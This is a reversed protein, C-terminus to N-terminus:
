DFRRYPPLPTPPGIEEAIGEMGYLTFSVLFVIPITLRLYTVELSIVLEFRPGLILLGM